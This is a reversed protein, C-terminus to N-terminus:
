QDMFSDVVVAATDKAIREVQDLRTEAIDEGEDQDEGHEDEGIPLSLAAVIAGPLAHSLRFRLGHFHSASGLGGLSRLNGLNQNVGTALIGGQTSSCSKCQPFFHQKINHRAFKFMRRHLQKANQQKFQQIVSNPPIHDGVFLNRFFPTRAGCTHCGYTQGMRRLLVRQKVTIYNASPAPVCGVGVKLRAFSGPATYSSPAISWCRGGCLKFIAIGLIAVRLQHMTIPLIIDPKNPHSSKLPNPLSIRESPPPILRLLDLNKIANKASSTIPFERTSVTQYVKNAGWASINSALAVTVLGVFSPISRPTTGTSIHMVSKQLWTSCALSSAFVVCGTTIGAINSSKSLEALSNLAPHHPLLSVYPSDPQVKEAINSFPLSTNGDFCAAAGGRIQKPEPNNVKEDKSPKRRWPNWNMVQSAEFNLQLVFL